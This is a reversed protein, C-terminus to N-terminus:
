GNLWEKKCDDVNILNLKRGSINFVNGSPLKNDTNERYLCDAGILFDEAVGCKALYDLYGYYETLTFREVRSNEKKGQGLLNLVMMYYCFKDTNGDPVIFENDDTRYKNQLQILKEDAYIHYSLVRTNNSFNCGDLDIVYVKDASDVVFNGNHVDGLYLKKQHTKNFNDIKKLITLIQKLYGLKEKKNNILGLNTADPVKPITFGIPNADQMVIEKPIILEEMNLEKKYTNLDKVNEIKEAIEKIIRKAPLYIKLLSDDTLNYIISESNIIKDNLKFLELETIQPATLTLTEM